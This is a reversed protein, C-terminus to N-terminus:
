EALVMYDTAVEFHVILESLREWAAATEPHERDFRDSEEASAQGEAPYLRDRAEPGDIEFIILYNGSRPGREGKLVLTRWGEPQASTVVESAAKEFRDPDVGPKLEIEHVGLVRAM